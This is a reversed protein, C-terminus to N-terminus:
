GQSPVTVGCVTGTYGDADYTLSVGGACEHPGGDAGTWWQFASTALSSTGAQHDPTVTATFEIWLDAEDATQASDPVSCAATTTGEDAVICDGGPRMLDAIQRAVGYSLDPKPEITECGAALVGALAAVAFTRKRM